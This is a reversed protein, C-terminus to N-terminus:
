CQNLSYSAANPTGAASASNEALYKPTKVGEDSDRMWLEDRRGGAVARMSLEVNKTVSTGGVENRNRTRAMGTGRGVGDKLTQYGWVRMTTGPVIMTRNLGFRM